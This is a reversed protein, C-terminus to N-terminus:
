ANVEHHNKYDYTGPFANVGTTKRTVYYQIKPIYTSLMAAAFGFGTIFNIFSLALNKNKAKALIEKNIKGDKSNKCLSEVYQEM